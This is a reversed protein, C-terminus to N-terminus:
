TQGSYPPMEHRRNVLHALMGKQKNHTSHTNAIVVPDELTFGIAM